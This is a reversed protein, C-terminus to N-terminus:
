LETYKKATGKAKEVPYKRGNQALKLELAEPLNVELIDSLRLLYTLIDCLEESAAQKLRPDEKLRASQELTLWQFIEVLEGAEVSLAMSLNKPNHFQEWDREKAFTALKQQFSSIDLIQDKM